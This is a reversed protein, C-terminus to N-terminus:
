LKVWKPLPTTTRYDRVSDKVGKVKGTKKDTIWLHAPLMGASNWHMAVEPRNIQPIPHHNRVEWFTRIKQAQDWPVVGDVFQFFDRIEQDYHRLYGHPRAKRRWHRRLSFLMSSGINDQRITFSLLPQDGEQISIWEWPTYSPMYGQRVYDRRHSISLPRHNDARRTDYVNWQDLETIQKLSPEYRQALVESRQTDYKDLFHSNNTPTRNRGGKYPSSSSGNEDNPDLSVYRRLGAPNYRRTEDPITREPGHYRRQWILIDELPVQMIVEDSENNENDEMRGEGGGGGGAHESHPPLSGKWMSTTLNTTTRPTSPRFFRVTVVRPDPNFFPQPAYFLIEGRAFEGKLSLMPFDSSTSGAGEAAGGGGDGAWGQGVTDVVPSLAPLTPGSYLPPSTSFYHYKEKHNNTDDNSHTGDQVASDTTTTPIGTIMASFFSSSSSPLLPAGGGRKLLPPRARVVVGRVLGDAHTAPSWGERGSATHREWLVDQTEVYNTRNYAYPGVGYDLAHNYVPSAPVEMPYCSWEESTMRVEEGTGELRVLLPTVIRETELLPKYYGDELRVFEGMESSSSSSSSSSIQKIGREGVGGDGMAEGLAGGNVRRDSGNPTTNGRKGRVPLSDTAVTCIKGSDLHQLDMVEVPTGVMEVSGVQGEGETEESAGDRSVTSPTRRTCSGGDRHPHQGPSSHVPVLRRHRRLLDWKSLHKQQEEEVYQHYVALERADFHRLVSEPLAYTIKPEPAPPTHVSTGAEDDGANGMGGGGGATQSGQRFHQRWGGGGGGMFEKWYGRQFRAQIGDMLALQHFYRSSLLPERTDPTGLAHDPLLQLPPISPPPPPPHSFSSASSSALLPHVGKGARISAERFVSDGGSTAGSRRGEEGNAMQPLRLVERLITPSPLVYAGFWGRLTEVSVRQVDTERIIFQEEDFLTHECLIDLQLRRRERETATENVVPELGYRLALARRQEYHARYRLFLEWELFEPRARLFPFGEMDDYVGNYLRLDRFHPFPKFYEMPREGRANRHRFVFEDLQQLIPTGFHQISKETPDTKGRSILEGRRQVDFATRILHGVGYQTDRYFYPDRHEDGATQRYANSGFHLANVLREDNEGRPIPPRQDPGGDHVLPPAGKGTRRGLGFREERQARRFDNAQQKEHQIAALTTETLAEGLLPSAATTNRAFAQQATEVESPLEASERLAIQAETMSSPPLLPPLRKAGFATGNRQARWRDRDYGQFVLRSSRQLISFDFRERARGGKVVHLYEALTDDARDDGQLQIQQSLEEASLTSHLPLLLPASSSSSLPPPTSFRSSIQRYRETRGTTENRIMEVPDVSPSHAYHSASAFFPQPGGGGIGGSRSSSSSSWSSRRQPREDDSSTSFSSSSPFPITRKLYAEREAPDTLIERLVGRVQRAGQSWQHQEPDFFDRHSKAQQQYLGVTGGGGGTNGGANPHGSHLSSDYLAASSTSSSTSSSIHPHHYRITGGGDSFDRPAYQPTYGLAPDRYVDKHAMGGLPDVDRLLEAQLRSTWSSTSFSSNGGSTPSFSSESGESYGQRGRYNSSSPSYRGGAHTSNRSTSATSTTSSFTSPSNERIFRHLQVGGGGGGGSRHNNNSTHNNHSSAYRFTERFASRANENVGLVVRVRSGSYFSSSFSVSPFRSSLARAGGCSSSSLSSEWTNKRRRLTQPLSSSLSYSSFSLLSYSCTRYCFSLYPVSDRSPFILIAGPFRRRMARMSCGGSIRCRLM